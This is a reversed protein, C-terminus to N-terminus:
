KLKKVARIPMGTEDFILEAPAAIYEELRAFREALGELVKESESKEPPPPPEPEVKPKRKRVPMQPLMPVLLPPAEIPPLPEGSGWDFATLLLIAAANYEDQRQQEIRDTLLLDFEILERQLQELRMRDASFRRGTGELAESLANAIDRGIIAMSEPTFEQPREVAELAKRLRPKGTAKAYAETITEELERAKARIRERRDEEQKEQRRLERLQQAAQEATLWGGTTRTATATVNSHFLLLLSM